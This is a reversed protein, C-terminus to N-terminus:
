EPFHIELFSQMYEYRLAFFDKIIQVKNEFYTKNYTNTDDSLFRVYFTQMNDKLLLVKEDLYQNVKESKFNQTGMRDIAAFFLNKFDINKMLKTFMLGLISRDDLPGWKWHAQNLFPDHSASCKYSLISSSDDTDYVMFHWKGDEKEKDGITRSRWMRVNNGPWDINGVYLQMAMYSAFEEFNIYNGAELYKQETDFTNTEFFARLQNFLEIDEANGEDIEDNKVIIVNKKKIGYHENIYNDSYREQLNYIGWYEGNLFVICPYSRQTDFLEDESLDQNLSDRVKTIYTDRYGGSRLMCTKLSEGGFFSKEFTDSGSYEKRAYLNFSKQNFARSWGGHIRVGINQTFEYNKEEDFYTISAPREWEKGKQNYNAPIEEPYTATHDDEDYIKGTTYIGKEYDFLDDFNMSLSIIPLNSYGQKQNYGVFYISEVVDSTNGYEDIAIARIVTCKDVLGNPFYVDLASIEAFSSIVNPNNSNDSITLTNEYKLSKDTPNSCDLTYYIDCFIDTNLSLQFSDNYFGSQVSFKPVVKEEGYEIYEDIIDEAGASQYCVSYKTMEVDKCNAPTNTITVQLAQNSIHNSDHSCILIADCNEHNDAWDFYHLQYDHGLASLIVSTRNTERKQADYYKDHKKSYYYELNGDTECTPSIANYHVLEDRGLQVLIVTTISGIIVFLLTILLIINKKM